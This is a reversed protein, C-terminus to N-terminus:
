NLANLNIQEILPPYNKIADCKSKLVLQQITKNTASIVYNLDGILLYSSIFPALKCEKLTSMIEEDIPLEANPYKAALKEYKTLKELALQSYNYGADKYFMFHTMEHIMLKRKRAMDNKGWRVEDIFVIPTVVLETDTVTYADIPDGDLRLGTRPVIDFDKPIYYIRLSPIKWVETMLERVIDMAEAAVGNGGNSERWAFAQFCFLQSLLLIILKKM